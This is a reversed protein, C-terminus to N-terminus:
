SRNNIDRLAAEAKAFGQDAAKRYWEVAKKDDQTVGRVNAYKVSLNFLARADKQKEQEAGKGLAVQEPTAAIKTQEPIMDMAEELTNILTDVDSHLRNDSIDFTHRRELSTLPEPLQSPKPMVAGGVLVPIARIKRELYPPSKLDCLIM